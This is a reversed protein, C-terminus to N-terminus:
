KGQNLVSFSEFSLLHNCLLLHDSVASSKPEVNKKALPSIRIHEEIEVNLHRASESNIPNM